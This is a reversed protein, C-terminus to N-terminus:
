RRVRRAPRRPPRGPAPVVIDPNGLDLGPGFVTLVEVGGPGARFEHSAGPPLMVFDGRRLRRSVQGIRAHVSGKLVLFFEFTRAHWLPPHSAGPGMRIRLVSFPARPEGDLLSRVLLTGM